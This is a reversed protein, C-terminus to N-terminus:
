QVGYFLRKLKKLYNWIWPTSIIEDAFICSKWEVDGELVLEGEGQAIQKANMTSVVRQDTEKELIGGQSGPYLIYGKKHWLM